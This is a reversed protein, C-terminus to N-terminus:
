GVDRSNRHLHDDALSCVCQLEPVPHFGNKKAFSIIIITFVINVPDFFGFDVAFRYSSDLLRFTKM